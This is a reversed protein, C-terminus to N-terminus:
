VSHKYFSKNDKTYAIFNRSIGWQGLHQEYNSMLTHITNSAFMHFFSIEHRTLILFMIIMLKIIMVLILKSILILWHNFLNRGIIKNLGWFVKTHYQYIHSGLLLSLIWFNKLSFWCIMYLFILHIDGPNEATVSLISYSWTKELFVVFLIFTGPINLLFIQSSLLSGFTTHSCQSVNTTNREEKKRKKISREKKGEKRGKKKIKNKINLKPFYAILFLM